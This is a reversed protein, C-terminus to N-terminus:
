VAVQEPSIEPGDEHNQEGSTGSTITRLKKIEVISTNTNSDRSIRLSIGANGLNSDISKLKRTLSNPAKPWDKEKTDLKEEAAIYTLRNFLEKANGTWDGGELLKIVATALPNVELVEDNVRKNNGEYIKLFRDGSIGLAEAIAYGWKCFDAMRPLNSLSCTPYIAMAKSLTEFIGGLIEPKAQEFAQWFENEAKRKDSSVRVLEFILCRDLLDSRTAVLNVGNLVVCGKFSMFVDDQDTYLKRKLIGGGTVAKCLYDSQKATLGDLNDFTIMYNHSLVQVLNNEDNPLSFLENKGPDVIKKLIRSATSKASGKEGYLAIVPKPIEPIFCSVLYVLLLDKEESDTINFFEFIRRINTSERSPEVQSEMTKQRKFVLPPNEEVMWGTGNMKISRNRQDALDFWFNDDKKGIRLSLNVKEGEYLAKSELVDLVGKLVKNEIIERKDQYYLHKLWSSFEKSRISFLRQYDNSRTTAIFPEDYQNSFITTDGLLGLLDEVHIETVADM